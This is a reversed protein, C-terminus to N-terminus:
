PFRASPRVFPRPPPIRFIPTTPPSIPQASPNKLLLAIVLSSPHAPKLNRQRYSKVKMLDM